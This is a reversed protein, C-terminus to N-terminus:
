KYKERKGERIQTQQYYPDQENKIITRIASLVGSLKDVLQSLFAKMEQENNKIAKTTKSSFFLKAKEKFGSKKDIDKKLTDRKKELVNLDALLTKPDSIKDEYIVGPKLKQNYIAFKFIEKGFNDVREALKSKFLDTDKFAAYLYKHVRDMASNWKKAIGLDSELRPKGEFSEMDFDFLASLSEITDLEGRAAYFNFTVGVLGFFIGYKILKM